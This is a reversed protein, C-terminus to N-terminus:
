QKICHFFNQRDCEQDTNQTLIALHMLRAYNADGTLTLKRVSHPLVEM